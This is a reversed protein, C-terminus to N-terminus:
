EFEKKKSKKSGKKKKKKKTSEEEEEEAEEEDQQPEEEEDEKAKKKGGGKKKKSASGDASQTTAAQEALVLKVAETVSLSNLVALWHSTFNALTFAGTGDRIQKHLTRIYETALTEEEQKLDELRQEVYKTMKDKVHKEFLQKADKSFNTKLKFSTGECCLASLTDESEWFMKILRRCDSLGKLEKEEEEQYINTQLLNKMETSYIQYLEKGGKGELNKKIGEKKSSDLDGVLIRSHRQSSSQQQRL